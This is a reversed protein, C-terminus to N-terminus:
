FNREINIVLSANTTISRTTGSYDKYAMLVTPIRVRFECDDVFFGHNNKDATADANSDVCWPMIFGNINDKIWGSIKINQYDLGLNHFFSYTTNIAVDTSKSIYKGEIAYSNVECVFNNRTKLRGIYIMECEEYEKAQANYSFFKNEPIVFCDAVEYVYIQSIQAQVAASEINTIEIKFQTCGIITDLDFIRAESAKWGTENKIEKLIIWEEGDFGKIFGDKICGTPTDSSAVIVFRAIQRKNPFTMQLWQNGGAVSAVWKNALNNNFALYPYFTGLTAHVLYSSASVSYGSDFEVSTTASIMTPFSNKNSHRQLKHSYVPQATTVFSQFRNDNDKKLGIHLLSNNLLNELYFDSSIVNMQNVKGGTSMGLGNNVLLPNDMSLDLHAVMPMYDNKAEYFELAGFGAYTGAGSIKSITLRYFRFSDSLKLAFYRKEKQQWNLNDNYDGLLTWNLDDNSGEIIFDCPSYTNADASNRSTISFAVIKPAINKFEVKCWGTTMGAVTLWGQTDNAHGRFAKWPMYNTADYQSSGSIVCEESEAASMIPITNESFEVKKIFDARGHTNKPCNLIAQPQFSNTHVEKASFYNIEKTKGEQFVYIGCDGPKTIRDVNNQLKLYDNNILLRSELFEIIFFGDNFGTIKKIASSGNVKFLNSNEALQLVDSNCNIEVFKNSIYSDIKNELEDLKNEHENNSDRLKEFNANVDAAIAKKKPQFEILKEITTM